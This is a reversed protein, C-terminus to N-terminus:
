LDVSLPSLQNNKFIPSVRTCASAILENIFRNGKCFIDGAIYGFLGGHRSHRIIIREESLEPIHIVAHPEKGSRIDGKEIAEKRLSDIDLNLLVDKYKNKVYFTTRGRKIISFSSLLNEPM